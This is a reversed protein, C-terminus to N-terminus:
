RLWGLSPGPAPALLSAGLAGGGTSAASALCRPSSTYFRETTESTHLYIMFFSISIYVDVCICIYIYIYIYIYRCMYRYMYMDMQIHMYM